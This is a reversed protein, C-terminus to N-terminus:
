TNTTTIDYGAVEKYRDSIAALETASEQGNGLGARQEVTQPFLALAMLHPHAMAVLDRAKGVPELDDGGAIARGERHDRVLRAFIVPDLEM